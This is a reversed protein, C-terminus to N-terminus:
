NKERRNFLIGLVVVAAVALVLISGVIPNLSSFASIVQAAPAAAAVLTGAVIAGQGTGTKAAQAVTEVPRTIGARRLGENIVSQSYPQGGLEHTIIARVLPEMHEYKHLDLVEIPSFGTIECVHRVYNNTSQTYQQGTPTRGVPPAWRNLIAKITKLNHRDFYTTLLAALARIGFEHSEFVAFRAGPGEEIGVQGQWKNNANFDINGPNKNRWGRSQKARESNYEVM